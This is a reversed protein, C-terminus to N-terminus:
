LGNMRAEAQMAADEYDSEPGHRRETKAMDAKAQRYREESMGWAEAEAHEEDTLPKPATSM